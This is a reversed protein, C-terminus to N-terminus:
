RTVKKFVFVETFYDTADQKRSITLRELIGFFPLLFLPPNLKIWYDMAYSPVKFVKKSYVLSFGKLKFLNVYDSSKRQIIVDDNQYSTKSTQEMIVIKGNNNLVRYFEDMYINLATDSVHQLVWCTYVKSISNKKCFSLDGSNTRYTVNSLNTTKIANAIKKESTDIALISKCEMGTHKHLVEVSVVVDIYSQTHIYKLQKIHHNKTIYDRYITQLITRPNQNSSLVSNNGSLTSARKNFLETVKGNDITM